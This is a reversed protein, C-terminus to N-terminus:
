TIMKNFTYILPKKFGNFRLTSTKPGCSSPVHGGGVGVRYLFDTQTCFTASTDQAFVSTYRVLKMLHLLKLLELRTLPAKNHTTGVFFFVQPASGASGWDKLHICHNRIYFCGGSDQQSRHLVHRPQREQRLNDCCHQKGDPALWTSVGGEEKGPFVCLSFAVRQLPCFFLYWNFTSYM